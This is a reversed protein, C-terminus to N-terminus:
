HCDSNDVPTVPTPDATPEPMPPPLPTPAQKDLIKIDSCSYYPRPNAPDETMQQILRLTCSNCILNPPLTIDAENRHPLAGSNQTDTVTILPTFTQDNDNSISIEFYGPHDITEEWQVRIVQGRQFEIAPTQNKAIGGCPGTKLGASNSRGPTSGTPLFRTHAMLDCSLFLILFFTFVSKM